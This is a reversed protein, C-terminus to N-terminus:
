RPYGPYFKETRVLDEKLEAAAEKARGSGLKISKGNLIYEGTLKGQHSETTDVTLAWDKGSRGNVEKGKSDFTDQMACDENSFVFGSAEFEVGIGPSRDPDSNEPKAPAATIVKSTSLLLCLTLPSFYM